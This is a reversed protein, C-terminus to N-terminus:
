HVNVHFILKYAYPVRKCSCAAMQLISIAFIALHLANAFYTGCFKYAYPIYKPRQVHLQSFMNVCMYLCISKARSTEETYYVRASSFHMCTHMYMHICTHVYTHIYTHIHTHVYTHMYTHMYAHMYPVCVTYLCMRAYTRVEVLKKHTIVVMGIHELSGSVFKRMSDLHVLTTLLIEEPRRSLVVQTFTICM